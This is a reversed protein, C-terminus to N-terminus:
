ITGLSGNMPILVVVMGILNLMPHAELFRNLDETIRQVQGHRIAEYISLLAPVGKAQGTPQQVEHDGVGNPLFIGIPTIDFDDANDRGATGSGM